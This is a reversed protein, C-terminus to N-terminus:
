YNNYELPPADIGYGAFVMEANVEPQTHVKNPGMYFEDVFIFERKIGDRSLNMSATGPTLWARRLPVQQFYSGESGAPKLGMQQFQSAVYAAAVNYGDTGPQRGRLLDDALFTIHARLREQLLTVNDEAAGSATFLVAGFLM